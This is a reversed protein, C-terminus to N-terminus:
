LDNVTAHQQRRDAQFEEGDPIRGQGSARFLLKASVLQYDGYLRVLKSFGHATEGEVAPHRTRKITNNAAACAPRGQLGRGTGPQADFKQFLTINGAGGDESGHELIDVATAHQRAVIRCDGALRDVEGADIEEAHANRRSRRGVGLAIVVKGVQVL